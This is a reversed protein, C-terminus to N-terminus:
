ALKFGAEQLTARIEAAHAADRAEIVLSLSASKLPTGTMMRNHNVELIHGGAQGVMEAVLALQGPRDELEVTLSLIRGERALERLILNSLLRMDINGGSMVLGVKRGAFREPAAM